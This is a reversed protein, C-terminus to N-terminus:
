SEVTFRFMDGSGVEVTFCFEGFSVRDEVVAQEFGARTFEPDPVRFQGPGRSGDDGSFTEGADCAAMVAEFNSVTGFEFCTVGGDADRRGCWRVFATEETTDSTFTTSM